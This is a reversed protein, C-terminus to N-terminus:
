RDAHSVEADLPVAVFITTGAGPASEITLTGGLLVARERMGFLGLSREDRAGSSLAAGEFGRGNDEVILSVSGQRLELIIGVSTAAAHRAVNTLAEQTIRYLATEIPAALRAKGRLNTELTAPIGHLRQWEAILRELAPVLGLDDLVSPRLQLALSHVADLTKGSLVRLDALSARAEPREERGELVKLSVMLSTLSQSTEDHLERAIRKREDEQATIVQELLRARMAEKQELETRSRALEVTMANFATALEGIEDPRTEPVRQTLDGGQVARAADRLKRIPEVTRRSFVWISAIGVLMVTFLVGLVKLTMEWLLRDVAGRSIGLRVAGIPLGRMRVPVAIDYLREGGGGAVPVISTAMGALVWLSRPDSLRAHVLAPDTHALAQGRTDLVMAYAFHEGDVQQPERGGRLAQVLKFLAYDDERLIADVAEQALYNATLLGRRQLERDLVQHEHALLYGAVGIIVLSVFGYIRWALVFALSRSFRRWITM